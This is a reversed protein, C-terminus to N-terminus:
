GHDYSFVLHAEGSGGGSLISALHSQVGEPSQLEFRRFYDPGLWDQFALFIQELPEDHSQIVVFYYPRGIAASASRWHVARAKMEDMESVSFREGTMVLESCEILTYGYVYEEYEYEEYDEEEVDLTVTVDEIQYEVAGDIELLEGNSSCAALFLMLVLLGAIRIM